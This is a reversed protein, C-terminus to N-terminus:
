TWDLGIIDAKKPWASLATSALLGSMVASEVCGLNMGCDTWDGSLYCNVFEQDDHAPLRYQDSGPVSLVYRETPEVNARFYQGVFREEDTPIRNRQDVLWEWRFIGSEPNAEPFIPGLHETLLERTIVEVKRNEAKQDPFPAKPGCETMPLHPDDAMVGCYYSVNLPYEERGPRAGAEWSERQILHTMDAWTNLPGTDYGSVVPEQMPTWGLQYATRRYWVQSALTRTTRMHQVMDQWKISKKIMDCAVYPLGGISIALVVDDFDRGRELTRPRDGQWSAGYSELDVGEEELVHGDVLQAYLPKSPWCPLGKVDILPHYGGRERMREIVEAQQTMEIRDVTRGDESALIQDVRHFLEIKVGRRRLVQYAPGFITDGMGAQMKWIPAGRYTLAERVCALLCEGAEIKANPPWDYGAPKTNDGHEYAFMGDYIGVMFGSNIMIDGDDLAHSAIWDRFDQGNIVKFGDLIVRDWVMGKFIAFMLHLLTWREQEILEEGVKRRHRRWYWKVLIENIWVFLKMVLLFPESLFRFHRITRALMGFFREEWKGKRVLRRRKEAHPFRINQDGTPSPHKPKGSTFFNKYFMKFGFRLYTWMPLLGAYGPPYHNAPANGIWEHWKGDFQTEIGSTGHPRFAERWSALPADPARGLEDYVKRMLAFANDYCGFWIHLGHEEIRNHMGPATNRGSAGKGGLRWGMQYIVVEYDDKRPNDPDTLALATTVGGVGGGLIAIRRKKRPPDQPGRDYQSQETM